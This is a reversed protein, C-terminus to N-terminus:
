FNFTVGAEARTLGHGSTAGAKLTVGGGLSHNVGLGYVEEDRGAVNKFNEDMAIYGILTTAAGIKYTGTLAASNDGEEDQGFGLTVGVNGFKASGTLVYDADNARNSDQYGAAIQYNGVKYALVLDTRDGAATNAVHSVHASFDGLEYIAEIGTNVAAAGSSYATSGGAVVEFDGLGSLGISAAYLGPMSDIAGYVNGVAVTLGAASVFFRPANVATAGTTTENGNNGEDGQMRIRAGFKLGNDAETSADINLRFRQEVYNEVAANESYALGFRGYGSLKVDAAAMGATAVLATTAILINKM